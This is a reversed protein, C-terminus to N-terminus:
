ETDGALEAPGASVVSGSTVRHMADGTEILLAGEEDIGAAVGSFKQRQTEVTVQQGRLWDHAPWHRYFPAFGCAEYEAFAAYIENMLQATLRERSPLEACRSKLDVAALVRDPGPEHDFLAHDSMEDNFASGVDINLGVGTVISVVEQGQSHAETLIGGLKGDGLVLDNPWKLMVDPVDCVRLARIAGLGIALTLASLNEPKRAFAYAISVCLGTGPPSHWSKGYRGRGATQNLTAATRFFGSRPGPQQMLYSNTSDIEDFIELSELQTSTVDGLAARIGDADLTTM